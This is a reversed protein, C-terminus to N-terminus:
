PVVKDQSSMKQAQVGIGLKYPLEEFHNDQYNTKKIPIKRTFIDRQQQMKVQLELDVVVNSLHCM